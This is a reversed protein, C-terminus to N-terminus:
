GGAEEQVWVQPIERQLIVQLTEVPTGHPPKLYRGRQHDDSSATWLKGHEEAYARFRAAVHDKHRSTYVELGRAYAMVRETQTRDAYRAAHAVVEFGGDARIADILAEPTWAFLAENQHWFRVHHRRFQAEVAPNRHALRDILAQLGPFDRASQLSLARGGLSRQGDDDLGAMFELVFDRWAEQVRLGRRYLATQELRDGELYSPPFYCLVHLQEAEATGPNLLCTLEAAPVVVVGLPQAAAAVLRVAAFHDHDSVAIVKLGEQARFRAYEGPTARGDSFFTHGHLDTPVTKM